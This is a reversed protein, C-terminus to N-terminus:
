NSILAKQTNRDSHSHKSCSTQLTGAAYNLTVNGGATLYTGPCWLLLFFFEVYALIFYKVKYYIPFHKITLSFLLFTFMTFSITSSFIFPKFNHLKSLSIICFATQYLFMIKIHFINLTFILIITNDLHVTNFIQYCM